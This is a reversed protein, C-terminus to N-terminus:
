ISSPTTFRLNGPQTQLVLEGAATCNLIAGENVPNDRNASWVVVLDYQNLLIAFLYSKCSGKCFFGCSFNHEELIVGIRKSRSGDAFGM